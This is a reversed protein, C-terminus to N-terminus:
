DPKYKAYIEAYVLTIIITVTFNAIFTFIQFKIKIIPNKTGETPAYM